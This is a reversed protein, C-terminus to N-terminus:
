PKALPCHTFHFRLENMESDMISGDVSWKFLQWGCPCNYQRSSPYEFKDLAEFTMRTKIGSLAVPYRSM